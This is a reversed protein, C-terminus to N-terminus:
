KYDGTFREKKLTAFFSVMRTNDYCHAVGSLSQRIGMKELVKRFGGSTYQSGCDSHLIKARIRSMGKVTDKCLEKKM